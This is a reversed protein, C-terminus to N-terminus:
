VSAAPHKTVVVIVTFGSGAAIVAVVLMQAPVDVVNLSAVLPPVQLELAIPMAVIPVVVPTNVPTEPPEAM